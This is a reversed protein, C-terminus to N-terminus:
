QSQYLAQWLKDTHYSSYGWDALLQNLELYTYDYLNLPPVAVEAKSLVPKQM